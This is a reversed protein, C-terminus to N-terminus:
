VGFGGLAPSGEQVMEWCSLVAQPRARDRDISPDCCIYGRGFNRAVRRNEDNTACFLEVFKIECVYNSSISGDESLQCDKCHTLHRVVNLNRYLLIM